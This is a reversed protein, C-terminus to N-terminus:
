PNLPFVKKVESLIFDHIMGNSAVVDGVWIHNDEGEFDSIKGGAEEILLSGAAIDWPSLRLEWFGDFRGCAVYALDLAASGTRRIGSVAMFIASLVKWYEDLLEKCRFPFGTAILCRNIQNLHSVHIPKNNCYAGKGREASYMEDRFPDYVVGLIIKGAHQLAISVAIHPNGHIFNTTGDLPDVIWCFENDNKNRGSEESLIEHDPFHETISNIIFQECTRDVETVYDFPSKNEAHYTGYQGLNDRLIAGAQRATAIALQKFTM